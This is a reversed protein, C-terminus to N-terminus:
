RRPRAGALGGVGLPDPAMSPQGSRASPAPSCPPSRGACGAPTTVGALYVQAILLEARRSLRRYAPLLASKWEREGTEGPLRARPVALQVHGFTTRLARERHGNRRGKAAPRREYRGRGLVAELEEELLREIFGRVQGRVAEDLPDFWDGGLDVAPTTTAARSTEDM